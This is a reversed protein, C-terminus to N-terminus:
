KPNVFSRPVANHPAVPRYVSLSACACMINGHSVEDDNQLPVTTPRQRPKRDIIRTIMYMTRDVRRYFSLGERHYGIKKETQETPEHRGEGRQDDHYTEDVPPMTTPEPLFGRCRVVIM